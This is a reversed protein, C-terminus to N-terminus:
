IELRFGVEMVRKAPLQMYDAARLGVQHLMHFVAWVLAPLRKGATRRVLGEHAIFFHVDGCFAHGLKVCGKLATVVDIKQMFGVTVTLRYFGHGIDEFRIRQSAPVRPQRSLEVTLLVVHEHLVRAHKVYTQLMPSARDAVRTLFVATGPVRTVATEPLTAIFEDMPVADEALRNAVAVIGIRWCIMVVAVMTGIAIPLWGGEVFKSVNAAFFSADIAAFVLIVALAPPRPWKLDTVLVHYLLLTTALMTTSVAVGFANALNDSTKFGVVILLALTMLMWNVFPVYIQGSAKASTPRVLMRPMLRLAIAQRTLSFVGSILAQSAIVTAMGALLVMPLRFIDPVMQYFPNDAAEPHALLWGGQGFYNVLLAPFALVFWALRIPKAGFHGMDAYLAEAGTLSLFILGFVTFAMKPEQALFRYAARPDLAELIAPEAVIGRMGVIAITLFWVVMVPGFWSGLDGTGRSQVAFLGFLIVLTVPIVFPAVSPAAVKLGEMASLVSIAPTIVGDGYLLAAGVVGIAVLASLRGSRDKGTVLAVLALIGGEGDNDANMVITVYKLSVIITLAWFILSVIGVVGTADAHPGLAHLSAQIAYLPSTGIDGFVVGLAALAAAGLPLSLHHQDHAEGIDDDHM